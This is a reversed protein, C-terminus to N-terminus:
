APTGSERCSPNVSSVFRKSELVAEIAPILDRSLASKYVYGVAGSGLAAEVFEPDTHQSLFVIKAEAAVSRIQTAADIGNMTPMSVDLLVLSPQMEAAREVAVQGNPAEAIVQFGNKLLKGRVLRRFPGFDDAILVTNARIAPVLM